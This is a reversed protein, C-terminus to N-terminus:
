RHLCCGDQRERREFSHNRQALQEIYMNTLRKFLQQLKTQGLLLQHMGFKKGGYVLNEIKCGQGWMIHGCKKYVGGAGSVTNYASQEDQQSSMVLEVGRM